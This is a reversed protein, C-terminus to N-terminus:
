RGLAILGLAAARAVAEARSNVGLRAYVLSLHDKVTRETLGLERGIEKSSLGGCVRQLVETQRPSLQIGPAADADPTPFAREGILLARVAAVIQAPELSKSLYGALRAQRARTILSADDVGSMLACAAQPLLAQARALVEFGDGDPLRYDALVAAYRTGSALQQLAQARSAALDCRWGHEPAGLVGALANRVLPHDDVILLYPTRTIASPAPSM